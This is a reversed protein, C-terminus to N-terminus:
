LVVPESLEAYHGEFLARHAFPSQPYISYQFGTAQTDIIRAPSKSLHPAIALTYCLPGTTRLVGVLGTGHFTADYSRINYLARNIAHALFPHEPAAVVHWTQFEGGPIAAVDPHLGFGQHEEGLRNHWQALLFRDTPQIVDDLPKTLSSKIDLYVGGLKHILLYRFVDARAAGYRPNIRKFVAFVDADYHTRVFADVEEDDYLRHEWAPNLARIHAISAQVEPPLAQKDKCTQHIVRPIALPSSSPAATM